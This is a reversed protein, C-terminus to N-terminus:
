TLEVNWDLPLGFDELHKRQIQCKIDRIIEATIPGPSNQYVFSLELLTQALSALSLYHQAIIRAAATESM